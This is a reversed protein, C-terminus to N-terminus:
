GENNTYSINLIICSGKTIQVKYTPVSLGQDYSHSIEYYDGDEQVQAVSVNKTEFENTTAIIDSVYRAKGVATVMNCEARDGGGVISGGQALTSGSAVLVILIFLMSRM